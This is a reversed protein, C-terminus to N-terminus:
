GCGPRSTPRHAAATACCCRPRCWRARGTSAATSGPLPMSRGPIRRAPPAATPCTSPRPTSTSRSWTTAWRQMCRGPRWPGRAACCPAAFRVTGDAETVAEALIDNSAALLRVQVGALPRGAGFARAQVALGQPGRWATLGLDTVIVPLAAAGGKSGDAPRAILAYLGPGATRLAEPLPLASRQVRNPQLAPLEVRGEWVTRGWSEALDDAAWGSIAEGATWTNRGFPVLNREGVRVVKLALASLNVTALGVQQAQGRPLLFRSADFVIRAARDPMAIRLVADKNLRLGDEAPLGARLVVRTSQGHPLGALCLQEGERLVALGPVPPEARVWDQPQWDTRKALPVTFRLCARAPEAEPETDIGAVLLGAARRAEALMQRYRPNDPARQLVAQLAQLQQAPRDLRQLAEAMVLLGAIEPPGSPVTQFNVWAAQLARAPDPPSKQLLARALALWHEPRAEGAAVREEWAQAAAAWNQQREAQVARAEATARQQPTAGAPFRRGLERQYGAADGSLGPLDFEQAWAPPPALLLGLLLLLPLRM